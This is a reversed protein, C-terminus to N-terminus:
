WDTPTLGLRTTLGDNLAATCNDRAQQTNAGALCARYDSVEVRFLLLLSTTVVGVLAALAGAAIALGRIRTPVAGRSRVARVVVVLGLVGGVPPAVFAAAVAVVAVVSLRIAQARTAPDDTGGAPDDSPGRRPSGQGSTGTSPREDGTRHGPVDTRFPDPPDTPQPSVAEDDRM